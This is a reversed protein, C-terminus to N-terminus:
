EKYDNPPTIDSIDFSGEMKLLNASTDENKDFIILEYFSNAEKNKMILSLYKNDRQEVLIEYFSKLDEIKQTFDDITETSCKNLELSTISKAKELLPMKMGIFSFEKVEPIDSAIVKAAEKQVKEFDLSYYDRDGRTFVKDFWVSSITDKEQDIRSLNYFSPNINSFAFKAYSWEVENLKHYKSCDLNVFTNILSDVNQAFFCISTFFLILTFLCKKM